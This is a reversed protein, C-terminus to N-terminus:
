TICYLSGLDLWCQICYFMMSMKELYRGDTLMQGADPGREQCTNNILYEMNVRANM